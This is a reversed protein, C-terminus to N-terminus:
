ADGLPNKLFSVAIDVASEAAHNSLTDLFDKARLKWFGEPVQV